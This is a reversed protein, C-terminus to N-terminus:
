AMLMQAFEAPSVIIIGEFEPFPFHRKNGTVLYDARAQQAQLTSYLTGTAQSSANPLM